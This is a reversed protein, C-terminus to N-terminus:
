RSADELNKVLIRCKVGYGRGRYRFHIVFYTSLITQFFNLYASGGSQTVEGIKESLSLLKGSVEHLILTTGFFCQFYDPFQQYKKFKTM